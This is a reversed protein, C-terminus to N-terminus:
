TIRGSGASLQRTRHYLTLYPGNQRELYNLTKSKPVLWFSMYSKRNTILVLKGGIKCQKPSKICCELNWFDSYKAVGRANLGGWPPIGMPRDRYFKGHIDISPWPVLHRLFIASFKLQSLIPRVFTVSLHCVSRRYCIDFTYTLERESFLLSIEKVKAWLTVMILTKARKWWVQWRTYRQWSREVAVPKSWQLWRQLVDVAVLLMIYDMQCLQAEQEYAYQFSIRVTALLQLYSIINARFMKCKTCCYACHVTLTYPVKYKTARFCKSNIRSNTVHHALLFWM